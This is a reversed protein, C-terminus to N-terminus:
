RRWVVLYCDGKGQSWGPTIHAPAANVFEAGGGMLLGSFGGESPSQPMGPLPVLTYSRLNGGGGGPVAVAAWYMRGATLTTAAFSVEYGADLPVQGCDVVLDTPMGTTPSSTYIALRGRTGAPWATQVDLRGHTVTVDTGGVLLPVFNMMRDDVAPWNGMFLVPSLAFWQNPDGNNITPPASPTAAAAQWRPHGAVATLVKGDDGPTHPLPPLQALVTALDTLGVKGAIAADQQTNKAEVATVRVALDDNQNAAHAAKSAIAELDLVQWKGPHTTPDQGAQTATKAVWWSGNYIIIDGEAYAHAPDYPVPNMGVIDTVHVLDAPLVADAGAPGAPGQLGTDGKPGVPGTPGAPGQSGPDGKVGQIGAPGQSGDAGRPGPDGQPGQPGAPGAPGQIHGVDKWEDTHGAPGLNGNGAGVYVLLDGNTTNLYADGPHNGHTPLQDPGPVAGAINLGAGTDGKPGTPGAPGAPGTDGKVGQAGAPGQPGDAGQPGAPGQPGDAGQPGTDGRPGRIPGVDVWRTGDWTHGHGTDVAIYMDGATATAPLSTATPVTGRITVGAGDKGDRGPLGQPGRAGDAGAPGQPGAPGPSGAAGPPGQPGQPGAPAVTYRPAAVTPPSLERLAGLNLQAGDVLLQPQIQWIGGRGCSVQELIQLWQPGPDAGAPVDVDLTFHGHDDLDVTVWEGVVTRTGDTFSTVPRVSVQGHAPTGDVHVYTDYLHITM